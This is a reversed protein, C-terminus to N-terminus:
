GKPLRSAFLVPDLNLLLALDPLTQDPNRHVIGAMGLREAARINLDLDDVFVCQEPSLSLRDAALAFIAPDPKRLGVEGSIVVADFLDAFRERAYGDSGWSNSVLGTLIGAGRATLVAGLMREDLAVGAFLQEILGHSPIERGARDSLALALGAAFEEASLRGTEVLHVASEGDVERYAEVFTEKVLESPLGRRQCFARFSRTVSTTLVGGYDVLLGRRGDDEPGV